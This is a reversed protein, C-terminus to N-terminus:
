VQGQYRGRYAEKAPLGLHEVILQAIKMRNHLHLSFPGLNKMELYLTGTYGALVTPATLHVSLGLRALTSKGEIRASLHNPLTIRELTKAIVMRNSDMKYPQKDISVTESHATLFKMVDIASPDVTIGTLKEPLVLLEPALLLDVASSDVNIPDLPPDIILRGAELEAWIEIHSLPM